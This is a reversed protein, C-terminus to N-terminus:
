LYNTILGPVIVAKAIKLFLIKRNNRWRSPREVEGRSVNPALYNQTPPSGTYQLHKVADGDEVQWLGVAGRRM